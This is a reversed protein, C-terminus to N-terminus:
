HCARTFVTIFRRTRYIPLPPPMEQSASRSNTEWPSQEMSNTRCAYGELITLTWSHSESLVEFGLLAGHVYSHTDLLKRVSDIIFYISVVIFLRQSTVCLAIAAFSVLSVWLITICSCRTASLQVMQLERNLRGFRFTKSVGEYTASLSCAATVRLEAVISVSSRARRGPDSERCPCPIKRKAVWDLGARPGVWGGLRHAASHFREGTIFRGPRSASWMGGDLASTLFM